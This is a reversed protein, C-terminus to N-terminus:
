SCTETGGNDPLHISGGFTLLRCLIYEYKTFDWLQQSVTYIDNRSIDYQGYVSVESQALLKPTPYFWSSHASPLVADFQM